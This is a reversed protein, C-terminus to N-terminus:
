FPFDSDTVFLPRQNQCKLLLKPLPSGPAQHIPPDSPLDGLYMQLSKYM